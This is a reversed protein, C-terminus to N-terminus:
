SPAKLSALSLCSASNKSYRLPAYVYYTLLSVCFFLAEQGRAM